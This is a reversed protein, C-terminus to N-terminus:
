KLMHSHHNVKKGGREERLKNGEIPGIHIPPLYSTPSPCSSLRLWKVAAM